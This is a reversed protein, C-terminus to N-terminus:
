PNRQSASKVWLSSHLWRHRRHPKHVAIVWTKWTELNGVDTEASSLVPINDRCINGVGGTAGNSWYVLGVPAGDTVGFRALGEEM